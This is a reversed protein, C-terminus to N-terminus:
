RRQLARELKELRAIRAQLAPHTAPLHLKDEGVPLLHFADRTAASRLDSQPIAGIGESVKMLASALAAASGTLAVSGADAAFERYRSLARTGISAMWGIAFAIAGGAMQPWWGGHLMRRGGGLLVAGPGGIVTMVAADRNAVHALEHGIVAEVERPELRDLLGQTLHLRYGRGPTGVVWSNPQRENELILTPKPLDALLCLREAIAHLGPADTETLEKGGHAARRERVVGVCGLVGALAVFGILKLPAELVLLALGAFVILPTLVAAIAMRAFLGRDAPVLTRGTM